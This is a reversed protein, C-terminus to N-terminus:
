NIKLSRYENKKNLGEKFEELSSCKNKNLLERIDKSVRETEKISFDCKEKLKNNEEMYNRRKDLLNRYDAYNIEINKIDNLSCNEDM